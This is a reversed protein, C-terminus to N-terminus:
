EWNWKSYYRNSSFGIYEKEIGNSYVLIGGMREEKIEKFGRNEMYSDLLEKPSIQYTDLTKSFIVRKPFNQVVTYEKDTFLIELMGFCSSFPNIVGFKMISFLTASILILLALICSIIIVKKKM